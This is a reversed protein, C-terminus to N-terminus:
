APKTEEALIKNINREISREIKILSKEFREKDEYKKNIKIYFEIPQGHPMWEDVVEKEPPTPSKEDEESEEDSSPKIINGRNKRAM